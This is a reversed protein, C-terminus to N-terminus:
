RQRRSSPVGGAFRLASMLRMDSAVECKDKALNRASRKEKMAVHPVLPQEVRGTMIIPKFSCRGANVYEEQTSAWFETIVEILRRRRMFTALDVPDVSM